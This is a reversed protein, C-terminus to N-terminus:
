HATENLRQNAGANIRLNEKGNLRELASIQKGTPMASFM